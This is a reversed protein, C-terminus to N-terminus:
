SVREVVLLASNLDSLTWPVGTDPNVPVNSDYYAPATTIPQDDVASKDGNSIMSPAITCTGADDKWARNFPRITLIETLSAPGNELGFNSEAATASTEIYDADNPPTEDLLAYGSVGTSLTFDAQATDANVMLVGCKTDGIFTNCGSGDDATDNCFFDAWDIVATAGTLEAGCIFQSFENNATYTTTIGTLNLRTVEDVRIEIAGDNADGALAYIEIHQYAGAGIVPVTRGLVGLGNDRVELAGDTGLLIRCQRNNAQDQLSCVIIGGLGGGSTGVSETTPLSHCYIARGLLVESLPEGFVRRVVGGGPGTTQRLHYAGTRPNATELTFLGDVQAWAQGSSGNLMKTEDGGYRGLGDAWRNAM